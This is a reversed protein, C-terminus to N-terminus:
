HQHDAVAVAPTFARVQRMCPIRHRELLQAIGPGDPVVLADDTVMLPQHQNGIQYAYLAWEAATGPQIVFVPEAREVVAAVLRVAELVFCDGRHLVTGRGLSTGFEVGGDTRRRGRTETREQWGLTVTDRGFSRAADPLETEKYVRDVVIM